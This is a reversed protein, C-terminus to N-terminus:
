DKTVKEVKNKLEFAVDTREFRLCKIDQAELTWLNMFFSVKVVLM